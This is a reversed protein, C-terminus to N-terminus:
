PPANLVRPVIPVTPAFTLSVRSAFLVRWQRVRPAILVRLVFWQRAHSATKVIPVFWLPARHVFWQPVLPVRSAGSAFLQQLLQTVQRCM